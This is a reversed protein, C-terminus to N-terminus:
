APEIKKVAVCCGDGSAAKIAISATAYHLVAGVPGVVKGCFVLLSFIVNQLTSYSLQCMVGRM